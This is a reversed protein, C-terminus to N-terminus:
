TGVTYYIELSWVGKIYIIVHELFCVDVNSYAYFRSSCLSRGVPLTPTEARECDRCQPHHNHLRLNHSCCVLSEVLSVDCHCGTTLPLATSM